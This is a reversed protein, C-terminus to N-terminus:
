FTIMRIVQPMLPVQKTKNKQRFNCWVKLKTSVCSYKLHLNDPTQMKYKVPKAYFLAELLVHGSYQGYADSNQIKKKKILM